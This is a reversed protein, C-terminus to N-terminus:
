RRLVYTPEGGVLEGPVVIDLGLEALRSMFREMFGIPDSSNALAAIQSASLYANEGLSNLINREDDALQFGIPMTRGVLNAVRAAAKAALGTKATQSQAGAGGTYGLATRSGVERAAQRPVPSTWGRRRAPPTAPAPAPVPTTRGIPAAQAAQAPPTRRPPHGPHGQTPAPDLFQTAANAPVAPVGNWMRQQGNGGNAPASTVPPPAMPARYESAPAFPPPNAAALAAQSAAVAPEYYHGAPNRGHDPPSGPAWNNTPRREFSSEEDLLRPPSGKSGALRKAALELQERLEQARGDVPPEVHIGWEGNPDVGAPGIALEIGHLVITPRSQDRSEAYARMLVRQEAWREAVVM